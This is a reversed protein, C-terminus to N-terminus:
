RRHRTSQTTIAIMVILKEIAEGDSYDLKYIGPRWMTLILLKELGSRRLREDLLPHDLLLKTHRVNYTVDFWPLEKLRMEMKPKDKIYPRWIERKPEPNGPKAKVIAKGIIGRWLREKGKAKWVFVTDRIQLEREYKTISVSWSDECNSYKRLYNVIDFDDPNAQVIWYNM